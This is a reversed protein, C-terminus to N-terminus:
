KRSEQEYVYDNMKFIMQAVFDSFENPVWGITYTPYLCSKMYTVTNTVFSKSVNIDNTTPFQNYNPAIIKEVSLGSMFRETIADFEDWSQPDSTNLEASLYSLIAGVNDNDAGTELFLSFPQEGATDRLQQCPSQFTQCSSLICLSLVAAITLFRKRANM